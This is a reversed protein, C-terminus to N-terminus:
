LASLTLIIVLKGLEETAGVYFALLATLLSFLKESLSEGASHALV